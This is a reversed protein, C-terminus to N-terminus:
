KNALNWQTIFRKTRSEVDSDIRRSHGKIAGQIMSGSSWLIIRVLVERGSARLHVPQGVVVEMMLGTVCYSNNVVVTNTNVYLYPSVSVGDSAPPVIEIRSSSLPHTVSQKLLAETIGCKSADDDLREIRLAMQKIGTLREDAHANAILVVFWMASLIRRM